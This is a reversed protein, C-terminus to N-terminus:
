VAMHAYPMQNKHEISYITHKQVNNTSPNHYLLKQTTKMNLRIRFFLRLLKREIAATRKWGHNGPKLYKSLYEKLKLNLVLLSTYTKKQIELSVAISLTGLLEM